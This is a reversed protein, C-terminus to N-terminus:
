SLSIIKIKQVLNGWVHYKQDLVSFTIGPKLKFPRSQIKPGFKGLFPYKYHSVFFTFVVM